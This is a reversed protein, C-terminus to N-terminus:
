SILHIAAKRSFLSCGHAFCTLHVMWLRIQVLIPFFYHLPTVEQIRFDKGRCPDLRGLALSHGRRGARARGELSYSIIWNGSLRSGCEDTWGFDMLPPVSRLPAKTAQHSHSLSLALSHRIKDSKLRPVNVYDHMEVGGRGEEGSRHLATATPGSWESGAEAAAGPM